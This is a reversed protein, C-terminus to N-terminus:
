LAVQVRQSEGAFGPYWRSFAAGLRGHDKFRLQVSIHYDALFHVPASLKSILEFYGRKVLGTALRGSLLGEGTLSRYEISSLFTCSHGSTVKQPIDPNSRFRVTTM